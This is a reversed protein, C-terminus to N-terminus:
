SYESNNQRFSNNPRFHPNILENIWTLLQILNKDQFPFVKDKNVDEDVDDVDDVIGVCVCSILM